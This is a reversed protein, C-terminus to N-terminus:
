ICNFEREASKESLNARQKKRRLILIFANAKKRSEIMLLSFLKYELILPFQFDNM